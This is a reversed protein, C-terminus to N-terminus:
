AINKQFYGKKQLKQNKKLVNEGKKLEKKSTQYRQIYISIEVFDNINITKTNLEYAVNLHVTYGWM